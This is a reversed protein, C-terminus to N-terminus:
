ETVRERTLRERIADRSYPLGVAKFASQANGNKPDWLDDRDVLAQLVAGQPGTLPEGGPASPFLYRLVPARDFDVTWNSALRLAALLPPLATERDPVRDCVAAIVTFRPFGIMQPLGDPFLGDLEDPRALSDLLIAHAVPECRPHCRLM